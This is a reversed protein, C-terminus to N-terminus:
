QGCDRSQGITCVSRDLTLLIVLNSVLRLFNVDIGMNKFNSFTFFIMVETNGQQALNMANGGGARGFTEM